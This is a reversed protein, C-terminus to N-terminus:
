GHSRKKHTGAAAARMMLSAVRVSRRFFFICEEIAASDRVKIALQDVARKTVVKLDILCASPLLACLM